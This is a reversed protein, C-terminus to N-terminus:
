TAPQPRADDEEVLRISYAAAWALASCVPLPLMRALNELFNVPQEGGVQVPLLTNEDYGGGVPRLVEVVGNDPPQRAANQNIKRSPWVAFPDQPFVEFVVGMVGGGDANHGRLGHMVRARVQAMDDNSRRERRLLLRRGLGSVWSCLLRLRLGPDRFCM